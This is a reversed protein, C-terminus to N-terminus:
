KGDPLEFSSRWTTAPVKSVTLLVAFLSRIRLHANWTYLSMPTTVRLSDRSGSLCWRSAVESVRLVSHTGISGLAFQVISQPVGNTLTEIQSDGARSGTTTSTWLLFRRSRSSRILSQDERRSAQTSQLKM